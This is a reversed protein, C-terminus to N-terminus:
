LSAINKDNLLNKGEPTLAYEIRDAYHKEVKGRVIKMTSNVMHNQETFPEDAVIIAAPLWREPFMGARSGGKRYSNVEDQIKKLMLEKAERSDIDIGPNSSKVYEKLAEKNPVVIVTTYPDQNNHLVVQDIYKSGDTLSDEFGEPSYKEGDASILLSKFRGVVYLFEEDRMYGMDGTHLWGDVVTEATSVPNKWYGAMVNEGRVVIEGREGYPLSKGDGDCIKIDMPKVVRGSSGFICHGASNASIIPTAESLGYGQFMPIGIACYYRQLEIDLLAGGGIFFQMRGGLNQRVTKFILKDFLAILPKKWIQLIGGRNYYEKNYSIALNLAFNYLKEVKPGKAKIATEINKKFNRALAPVSLMVHPRVEKIAMPINRLAAMPTKGVPVTAISGCYSMMTYFGAVHAFCHDLPLIILMVSDPEIAVVSHAQEVNATYNRHTLLIGKPDATAGSTYSINAYDDPGISRYRAELEGPHEKLFADGLALVESMTIENDRRDEIEDFVIIKELAPLESVIRRIKPLQSGSVMVFRSDSHRIRFVLDSGEELKISLPVNVAGAYLIGLEGIVWLNRGESLLSIRDGKNIGLSMLGAAVRYAELRTQEFTTETWHDAPKERLFVHSAYERTYKEVFDIITLREPM